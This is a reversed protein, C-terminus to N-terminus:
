KKQFIYTVLFGRQNEEEKYKILEFSDKLGDFDTDQIFDEARFRENPKNKHGHGSVFLIGQDSIHDKITALNERSLRYHNVVINDFVGMDKLANPSSLDLQKMEVAYGEETMFKNLRELAKTSFDIGTVKFNNKLLFLTNRGDGCAIDLVSGNKFFHINEVLDEEPGALTNEREEFRGNWYKEDGMYGM